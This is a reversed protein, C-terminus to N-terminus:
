FKMMSDVCLWVYSKQTGAKNEVTNLRECELDSIVGRTFLRVIIFSVDSMRTFLEHKKEMSEKDNESIIADASFM